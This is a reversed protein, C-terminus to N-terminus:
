IKYRKYLFEDLEEKSAEVIFKQDKQSFEPISFNKMFEKSYVAWGDQMKKSKKDMYMTMLQSELVRKIVDLSYPSGSKRFIAYGSLYLIESDTCKILVPTKALPPVFLKEGWLSNIGQTRGYLFWKAKCKGKDRELLREKHELLHAYAKPFEQLEKETMGVYKGGCQRYPFIIHKHALDSAGKLTSVKVCRKLIEPEVDHEGFFVKDALTALGVRIDTLKWLPTGASEAIEILRVDDNSTALRDWAVPYHKKCFRLGTVTKTDFEPGPEAYEYSTNPQKSLLCITTYTNLNDFMQHEKFDVLTFILRNDALYKCLLSGSKNKLFTNSSIYGLVGDDTMLEIGAEYFPIYLDTNGSCTTWSKLMERDEIPINHTRVYPPNGVVAHFKKQGLVSSLFKRDLSNGHYINTRSLTSGESRALDVLLQNLLSVASRDYDIGYIRNEIIHKYSEGTLSNIQSAMRLLFAGAGCSLDIVRFDHCVGGLRSLLRGSIYDILNPPTYTVGLSKRKSSPQSQAYAYVERM